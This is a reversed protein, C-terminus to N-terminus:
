NNTRGYFSGDLEVRIPDLVVPTTLIEDTEPNRGVKMTNSNASMEWRVENLLAKGDEFAKEQLGACFDTMQKQAKAPDTKLLKSVEEIEINMADIMHKEAEHWYQRVPKGYTVTDTLCLTNLEKFTFWPYQDSEFQNLRDEPQNAAYADSPETCLINMPVFVGYVAPALSVWTTGAIAPPLDPDLQVVHVSMSTDTGIVRVDVRGAEDPSYPTGEYRNRVLEM